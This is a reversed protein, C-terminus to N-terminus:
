FTRGVAHYLVELLLGHVDNVTTDRVVRTTTQVGELLLCYLGGDNPVLGFPLRHVDNM